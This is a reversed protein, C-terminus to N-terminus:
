SEEAVVYATAGGIRVVRVAAGAEIPTDDFSRATWEGGNLRVTGTRDDVAGLTIAQMGILADTGTATEGPPTLHRKAVPRLGGLLVGTTVLAVVIQLWVPGGLAATVSGAAAGGAFMVLVFALSAAEAAALVGAGILWILWVPM